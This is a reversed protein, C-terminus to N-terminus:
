PTFATTGMLYALYGRSGCLLRRDQLSSHDVAVDHHGDVVYRRRGHPGVSLGASPFHHVPVAVVSCSWFLCRDVTDVVGSSGGSASEEHVSRGHHDGKEASL